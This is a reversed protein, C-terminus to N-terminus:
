FWYNRLDYEPETNSLVKAVAHKINGYWEDFPLKQYGREHCVIQISAGARKGNRSCWINISDDWGGCCPLCCIQILKEGRELQDYYTGGTSSLRNGARLESGSKVM